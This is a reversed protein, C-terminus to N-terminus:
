AGRRGPDVAARFGILAAGGAAQGGGRNGSGAQERGGGAGSRRRAGGGRRHLAPAHHPGTRSVLAYVPPKKGTAAAWEQIASKPTARRRTRSTSARAGCGGVLATAADLGAEIFVAGILAEMVDGLVNSATWRAMTARRSAWGCCRRCASRARSKRASRAPSWRTSAARCGAKPTAPFHEFLWQAVILGLVRDGLFELREYNTSGTSGHTLARRFLEADRPAHGLTTAVWGAITDAASLLYIRHSGVQGGLVLDV